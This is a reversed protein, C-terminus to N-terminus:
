HKTFLFDNRTWRKPNRWLWYPSPEVMMCVITKPKARRARYVAVIHDHNYHYHFLLLKTSRGHAYLSKAYMSVYRYVKQMISMPSGSFSPGRYLVRM